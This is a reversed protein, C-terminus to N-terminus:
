WVGGEDWLLTIEYAGKTECCPSRIRRRRRVALHNWVGGEDWLLTIEYAEKTECCLSLDWVGGEDWLLTISGMRRRRRVALHDWVGGQYPVSRVPFSFILSPCVYLCRHDWLGDKNTWFLSILSFAVIQLLFIRDKSSNGLSSLGNWFM